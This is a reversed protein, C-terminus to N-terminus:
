VQVLNDVLGQVTPHLAAYRGLHPSTPSLEPSRDPWDVADIAEEPLFQQCVAAVHPGAHDQIRLFGPGFAGAYPRVLTEDRHWHGIQPRRARLGGEHLRNRVTQASVHANTAQQLDSQLARATSRGNRGECLRRYREQRQTGEEVSGSTSAQRRTAGGHEPGARMSTGDQILQVVQAVSATERLLSWFM